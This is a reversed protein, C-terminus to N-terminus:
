KGEEGPHAPAADDKPAISWKFAGEWTMYPGSIRDPAGERFWEWWKSIFGAPLRRWELLHQRNHRRAAIICAAFFSATQVLPVLVLAALYAAILAWVFAGTWYFILSM